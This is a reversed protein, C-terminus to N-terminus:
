SSKYYLVAYFVLLGAICGDLYALVEM